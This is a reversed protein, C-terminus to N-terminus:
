EKAAAGCEEPNVIKYRTVEEYRGETPKVYVRETVPEVKCRSEGGRVEVAYSGAKVHYTIKGTYEDFSKTIKNGRVGLAKAVEFALARADMGERADLRLGDSGYIAGYCFTVDDVPMGCDILRSVTKEMRMSAAIIRTLREKETELINM